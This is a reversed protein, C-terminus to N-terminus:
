NRPLASDYAPDTYTYELFHGLQSRADAYFFASDGFTGTFGIPHGSGQADKQLSELEDLSRARFSLHHFRIAFSGDAPLVDRYCEVDGGIPQIIEFQMDGVYTLAVRFDVVEGSGMTFTVRGTDMFREVGYVERFVRLAREIDNTVYSVQQLRQLGNKMKM